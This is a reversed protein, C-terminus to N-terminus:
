LGISTITVCMTANIKVSHLVLKDHRLTVICVKYVGHKM